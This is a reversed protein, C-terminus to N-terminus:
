ALFADATPQLNREFFTTGFVGLHTEEIVLPVVGSCQLFNADNGCFIDTFQAVSKEGHVHSHLDVLEDEIIVLDDDDPGNERMLDNTKRATVLIQERADAPRSYQIEEM